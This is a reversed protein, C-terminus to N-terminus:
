DLKVAQKLAIAIIPPIIAVIAFFLSFLLLIFRLFDSSTYVSLLAKGAFIMLPIYFPLVILALLINSQKAGVMIASGMAGILTLIPTIILLILMLAKIQIFEMNYMVAIIPTIVIIPLLTFLWHIFCRIIVYLSLSRQSMILFDLSADEYEVAFLREISLLSALLTALLIVPAGSKEIFAANIDTAFPFIVATILLFAAPLLSSMLNHLSLKIDRNIIAFIWNM